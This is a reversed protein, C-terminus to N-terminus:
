RDELYGTTQLDVLFSTDVRYRVQSSADTKVVLHVVPNSSSSATLVDYNTDSAAVNPADSPRVWAYGVGALSLLFALKARTNPPASVTVLAGTTSGSAGDINMVKTDLTIDLGGGATEIATFGVISGSKREFKFLPRYATASHDTILNSATASTDYGIDASGGVIIAHAYWWGDAIAQSSSRGGQNTGAAWTVDLQKTFAPITINVADASDRCEGATFDLDNTTDTGNSPVGGTIYDKPLASEGAIKLYGGAGANVQYTGFEGAGLSDDAAVGDITDGGTARGVTVTGSGANKITVTYGAGMTAADGLNITTTGTVEITKLHDGVVTPYTTSKALPGLDAFAVLATEIADVQTVIPDTLKQKHNSWKLKNSDVASGDDAPPSANYGTRGQTTYKTGM